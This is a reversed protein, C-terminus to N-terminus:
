VSSRFLWCFFTHYGWATLHKWRYSVDMRSQWFFFKRFTNECRRSIPKATDAVKFFIGSKWGNPLRRFWWFRNYHTTVHQLTYPRLALCTFHIYLPWLSKRLNNKLAKNSKRQFVLGVFHQKTHPNTHPRRMQRRKRVNTTTKKLQFSRRVHYKQELVRVPLM